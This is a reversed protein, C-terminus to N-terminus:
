RTAHDTRWNIEIKLSKAAFAVKVMLLFLCVHNCLMSNHSLTIEPDLCCM